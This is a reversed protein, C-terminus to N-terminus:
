LNMNKFWLNMISIHVLLNMNHVKPEYNFYSGKTRFSNMLSSQVKQNMNQVLLNMNIKGTSDVDSGSLDILTDAAALEELSQQQKDVNVIVPVVIAKAAEEEDAFTNRIFNKSNELAAIAKDYGVRMEESTANPPPHKMVHQKIYQANKLMDTVEEWVQWRHRQDESRM